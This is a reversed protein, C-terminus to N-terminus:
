RLQTNAIEDGLAQLLLDANEELSCCVEGLEARCLRLRKTALALAFERAAEGIQNGSQQVLVKIISAMEKSELESTSYDIEAPLAARLIASQIVGDNFRDFCRPSLIRRVFSHQGLRPNRGGNRMHHLISSILFYTEAQSVEGQKYSFDLFAFNPQLEMRKGASTRLFVDHELGKVAKSSANRIEVIRQRLLAHIPEGSKASRIIRKFLELECAWADERGERSLPIFVKSLLWFGHEKGGFTLNARLEDLREKSPCRAFGILYHLQENPQAARLVQSVAHLSRGSSVTSAVVITSGSSATQGEIDSFITNAEVVSVEDRLVGAVKSRLSEAMAISAPDSLTIIRRLTYPVNQEIVWALRESLEPIEGLVAPAFLREADLFIHFPQESGDDSDTYQAKIISYGHVTEVFKSLWKGPTDTAKIVVPETRSEGPLFQDGELSILSWGKKCLECEDKGEFSRFPDLTGSSHTGEGLDCVAFEPRSEGFYFLTVIRDRSFLSERKSVLSALGGSTSASILVVSDSPLVFKFTKLGEFSGFSEVLCERADPSLLERLRSAAFAVPFIAGTDCYIRKINDGIFRLSAFAIFDIEASSAMVNGVRMFSQSHKGSPKAYHYGDQATLLGKRDVFIKSMGASVIVELDPFGSPPNMLRGKHDFPVVHVSPTDFYKTVEPFRDAFEAEAIIAQLQSRRLELNPTFFAYSDAPPQSLSVERLAAIVEDVNPDPSSCHIIRFRRDRHIVDFIFYGLM